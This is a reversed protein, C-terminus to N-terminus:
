ELPEALPKGLSEPVSKELLERVQDSWARAGESNLHSVDGFYKPEWTPFPEGLIHLSTHRAQLALLHKTVKEAFGSKKLEDSLERSPPAALYVPIKREDFLSLTADLYWDLLKSQTFEPVNERTDTGDAKGFYHQGRTHIEHNLTWVNERTKEFIGGSLLEPLFYSPFSRTYLFTKVRADFDLATAPGFLLAEEDGLERAKRRIADIEDVGLFGFKVSRDWFTDVRSFHYPSISLIVSEPPKCALLEKAFYYTEIATSGPLALNMVDNGIRAPILGAVPRSDGLITVAGTRCEHMAQMKMLWIPYEFTLFDFRHFATWYWATGMLIAFSGLAALLFSKSSRSNM